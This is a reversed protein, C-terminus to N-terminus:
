TGIVERAVRLLDGLRFPKALWRCGSENLFREADAGIVDGTVFIVRAALAPSTASITRYFQIGDVRTLTFVSTGEDLVVQSVYRDAGYILSVVAIVSMTGVINGLLTLFTRLKHGRLSEFAISVGELINM